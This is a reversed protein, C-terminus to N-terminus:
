GLLQAPLSLPRGQSQPSLLHPQPTGRIKQQTQIMPYHYQQQSPLPPSFPTAKMM